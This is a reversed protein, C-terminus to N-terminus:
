QESDAIKPNMFAKEDTLTVLLSTGLKNLEDQDIYGDTMFDGILLLINTLDQDGLLLQLNNMTQSYLEKNIEPSSTFGYM